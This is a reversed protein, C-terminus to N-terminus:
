IMKTKMNSVEKIPETKPSLKKRVVTSLYGLVYLSKSQDPINGCMQVPFSGRKSTKKEFKGV